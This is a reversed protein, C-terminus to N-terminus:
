CQVRTRSAGCRFGARIPTCLPRVWDDPEVGTAMRRRNRIVYEIEAKQGIRIEYVRELDDDHRTRSNDTFRTENVACSGCQHISAPRRYGATMQLCRASPLLSSAGSPLDHSHPKM